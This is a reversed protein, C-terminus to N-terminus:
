DTAALIDIKWVFGAEKLHVTRNLWYWLFDFVSARLM